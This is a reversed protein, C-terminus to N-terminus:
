CVTSQLLPVIGAMAQALVVKADNLRNADFLVAVIAQITDSWTISDASGVLAQAKLLLQV